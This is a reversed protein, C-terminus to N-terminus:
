VALCFQLSGGNKINLTDLYTSPDQYDGSWGGNYL